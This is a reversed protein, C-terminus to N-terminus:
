SPTSRPSSRRTSTTRSAGKKTAAGGTDEGPGALLAECLGESVEVLEGTLRRLRRYEAIQERTRPVAAAPIIRTVTRGGVARTLSWSPGHGEDQEGTCHCDPKGCKRYRGVLSGPRLDGIGALEARIEDRRQRLEEPDRTRAM